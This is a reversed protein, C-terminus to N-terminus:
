AFPDEIDQPEAPNIVDTKFALAESWKFHCLNANQSTGFVTSFIEKAFILAYRLDMASIKWACTKETKRSAQRGANPSQPNCCTYVITHPHTKHAKMDGRAKAMETTIDDSGSITYAVMRCLQRGAIPTESAYNCVCCACMLILEELKKNDANPYLAMTWMADHKMASMAKEHDSFVMGCSGSAHPHPFGSHTADKFCVANNEYRVVVVPRGFKNKEVIANQEALARKGAESSPNLEISRPKPTMEVGHMCRPLKDEFWGHRWVYVGGPLFKPDLECKAYIMAALFRGIQNNFSDYSSYTLRFDGHHKRMFVGGIKSWISSDPQVTAGQIKIDLAGCIKELCMMAKQAGFVVADNPKQKQPQEEHDSQEEESEIHKTKRQKKITVPKIVIEEGESHLRKKTPGQGKMGAIKKPTKLPQGVPGLSETESEESSDSLM